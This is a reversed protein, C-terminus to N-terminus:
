KSIQKLVGVLVAAIGVAAQLNEAKAIEDDRSNKVYTYMAELLEKYETSLPLQVPESNMRIRPDTDLIINESTIKM